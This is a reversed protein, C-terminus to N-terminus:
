CRTTEIDMIDCVDIIVIKGPVDFFIHVSYPAGPSCPLDTWGVQSRMRKVFLVKKGESLM